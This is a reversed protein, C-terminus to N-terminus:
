ISWSCGWHQLVMSSSEQRASAKALMGEESKASGSVAVSVRYVHCSGSLWAQGAMGACPLSARWHCVVLCQRVQQRGEEPAWCQAWKCANKAPQGTRRALKCTGLPGAQISENEGQLKWSARGEKFKDEQKQLSVHMDQGVRGSESEIAHEGQLFHVRGCPKCSGESRFSSGEKQLGIVM